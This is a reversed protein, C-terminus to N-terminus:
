VSSGTGTTLVLFGKSFASRDERFELFSNIVSDFSYLISIGTGVTIGGGGGVFEYLAM